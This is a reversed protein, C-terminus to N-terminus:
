MWSFLHLFSLNLVKWLKSSIRVKPVIVQLSWWYSISFPCHLFLHILDEEVNAHCLVCCVIHPYTCIKEVFSPDLILATMLFSGSSSKGKTKVLRIGSGTFLLTLTVSDLWTFTHIIPLFPESVMIASGCENTLQLNQLLAFLNLYQLYAESSLPLHFLSHLNAYSSATALSINPNRTFSFLEPYQQNLPDNNWPDFWLLCTTGNRFTITALNKFSNIFKLIDRWWFSGRFPANPSHLKSGSYYKDWVLQVWPTNDKNFIKHLHKLLVSENQKNIDLIGLGGEKKPLCCKHWAAKPPKKSLDYGRWLCHRRFRDIQEVITKPLLYSSMAFM